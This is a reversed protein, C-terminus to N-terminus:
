RAPRREIEVSWRQPGRQLYTVGYGDPDAAALRRWLPRPDIAARVEIREGREMRLLRGLVVEIGRPGPLNALDIV